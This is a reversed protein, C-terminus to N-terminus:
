NKKYSGCSSCFNSSSNERRCLPCKILEIVPFLLLFMDKIDERRTIIMGNRISFDHGLELRNEYKIAQNLNGNTTAYLNFSTEFPARAGYLGPKIEKLKLIYRM